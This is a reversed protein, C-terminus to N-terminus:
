VWGAYLFWGVLRLGLIKCVKSKEEEVVRKWIGAQHHFFDDLLLSCCYGSPSLGLNLLDEILFSILPSLSLGLLKSSTKAERYEGRFLLSKEPPPLPDEPNEPNSESRPCGRGLGEKPVSWPAPNPDPDPETELSLEDPDEESSWTWRSGAWNPLKLNTYKTSKIQSCPTPKQNQNSWPYKIKGTM